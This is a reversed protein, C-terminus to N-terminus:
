VSSNMAFLNSFRFIPSSLSELHRSILGLLGHRLLHGHAVGASCPALHVQVVRSRGRHVRFDDRRHERVKGLLEVVRAGGVRKGTPDPGVDLGGARLDGAGYAGPRSVDDEGGSRGLRVVEGEGAHVALDHRVRGLVLAHERAGLPPGAADHPHGGVAAHVRALDRRGDRGLRLEDRDLERVALDARNLRHAVDRPGHDGLPRAPELRPLAPGDIEM